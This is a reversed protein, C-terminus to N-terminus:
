KKAEDPWPWDGIKREAPPLKIEPPTVKPWDFPDELNVIRYVEPKTIWEEVTQGAQQGEHIHITQSRGQKVLWVENAPIMPDVRIPIGAFKLAETKANNLDV